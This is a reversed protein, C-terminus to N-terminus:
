MVTKYLDGLWLLESNSLKGEPKSLISLIMLEKLGSKEIIRSSKLALHFDQHCFTIYVLLPVLISARVEYWSRCWNIDWGVWVNAFEHEQM